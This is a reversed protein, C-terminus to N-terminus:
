ETEQGPDILFLSHKNNSTFTCHREVRALIVHNARKYEKKDRSNKWKVM